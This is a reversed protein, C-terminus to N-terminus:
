TLDGLMQKLEEEKLRLLETSADLGAIGTKGGCLTEIGVPEGIAITLRGLLRRKPRIYVPIIPCGSRLAILAAGSKFSSMEGTGDNVQGEPYMGVLKGEKLLGIVERVTSISVNNKDVPVCHVAKFFWGWKSDFFQQLCVFHMRRYWVACMLYIPDFFGIHNAIVLAGGNIRQRANESAYVLKPRFWLWGPLGATIKVFDYFFYYGLKHKRKTSSM